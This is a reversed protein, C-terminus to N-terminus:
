LLAGCADRLGPLLDADVKELCGPADLITQCDGEALTDLCAARWQVRDAGDLNPCLDRGRDLTACDALQDCAIQCITPEEGVVGHIVEGVSALQFCVGISDCANGECEQPAGDVWAVDYGANRFLLGLFPLGDEPPTGLPLFLNVQGCLAPANPQACALQLAAIWGIIEERTWYGQAMGSSIAYGPGDAALTGSLVARRLVVDLIVGEAIPFPIIFAGETTVFAGDPDVVTDPFAYIAQSEPDAPDVLYPQEILNRGDVQRIGFLRPNTVGIEAPPVNPGWGEAQLFARVRTIGEANPQLYENLSQVGVQRLWSGLTTGAASGLVTCGAARALEPTGPVELETIQSAPGWLTQRALGGEVPVGFDPEQVGADPELGDRGDCNQDIGDETDDIALPYRDPDQDDCDRGGCAELRAGDLDRDCNNIVVAVRQEVIQNDQGVMSVYLTYAGDEFDTTDLVQDFPAAFASGIRADGLQFIARTPPGDDDRGIARLTVLGVFDADAELPVCAGNQCWELAVELPHDVTLEIEARAQQGVSDTAVASLLRPGSRYEPTWSFRGEADFIGIPEGDVEFILESLGLDDLADVQLETPGTLKVGAEPTVFRVTPPRDILVTSDIQTTLGARDTAIIRVPLPGSPAGELNLTIAYPPEALVIDNGDVQLNVEAVVYNDAAAMTFEIQGSLPTDAAPSLLEVTPATHDITFFLRAAGQNAATVLADLQHIGEPLQAAPVPFVFPAQETAGVRHGDLYLEATDAATALEVEFDGDFYADAEPRIFAVAEQCDPNTNDVRVTLRTFTELGATDRALATIQHPGDAVTTTDWSRLLRLDGEVRLLPEDDIAVEVASIGTDDEAELAIWSTGCLTADAAPRIIEVRSPPCNGDVDCGADWTFEVQADATNGSTDTALVDLTYPGSPLAAVDPTFTYPAADFALLPTGNLSLAVTAVAVDDEAEVEIEFAGVYAEGAQPSIIQVTPPVEDIPTADPAADPPSADQPTGDLAGGDPMASDAVPPAGDVAADAPAGDVAASSTTADDCGVATVVAFLCVAVRNM